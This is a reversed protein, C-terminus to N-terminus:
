ITQALSINDCFMMYLVSKPPLFVASKLLSFYTPSSVFKSLDYIIGRVATALCHKHKIFRFSSSPM